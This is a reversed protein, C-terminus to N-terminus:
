ISIKDITQGSKGLEKEFANIVAIDTKEFPSIPHGV